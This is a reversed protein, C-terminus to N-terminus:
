VALVALVHCAAGALVFLHWIAHFWPVKKMLYFVAGVTYAIGGAALLSFSGPPLVAKVEGIFPLILWGMLVYGLTAVVRFRDVFFAKFAIGFAAITWVAGFLLWGSGGRLVGLAFATYSGAILVYISAHDFIEFVKKAKPAALAHYITSMSFLLILSAGFVANSVTALADRGAGDIVLLVLAAMSLLAGIGHTVANAIEEGLPYRRENPTDYSLVSSM